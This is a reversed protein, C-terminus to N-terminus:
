VKTFYQIYYFMVPSTFILSDIVDLVGGHGPVFDSSDKVGFDRKIISEVTDGLHGFIGLLLGLIFLQGISFSQMLYSGAIISILIAAVLGGIAGEVSKKPSIRPMLKHRGILMGVGYAGFDNAWTIAFCMFLYYKGDTLNRLWILHNLMWGLYIVGVLTMAFSGTGKGEGHLRGFIYLTVGLAIILGDLSLNPSFGFWSAMVILLSLLIGLYRYTKFGGREVIDYFELLALIIISNLFLLFPVSCSNLVSWILFPGFLIGSIIRRYFTM